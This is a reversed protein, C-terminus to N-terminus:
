ANQFFQIKIDDPSATSFDFVKMPKGSIDRKRPPMVFSSHCKYHTGLIRGVHSGKKLHEAIVAHSVAARQELFVIGPAGPFTKSPLNNKLRSNNADASLATLLDIRPKQHGGTIALDKLEPVPNPSSQAAGFLPKSDSSNASKGFNFKPIKFM